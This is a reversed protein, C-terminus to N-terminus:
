VEMKTTVIVEDVEEDGFREMTADIMGRLIPDSTDLLLRDIFFKGNFANHENKVKINVAIKM